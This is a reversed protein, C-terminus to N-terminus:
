GEIPEILSTAASLFYAQRSTGSRTTMPTKWSFSAVFYASDRCYTLSLPRSQNRKWGTEASIPSFTRKLFFAQVGSYSFIKLPDSPMMKKPPGSM